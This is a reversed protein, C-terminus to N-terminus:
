FNFWKFASALKIISDYVCSFHLILLRQSIAFTQLFFFLLNVFKNAIRLPANISGRRSIELLTTHAVM